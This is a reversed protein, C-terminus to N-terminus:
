DNAVKEALPAKGFELAIVKGTLQERTWTKGDVDAAEFAPAARHIVESGPFQRSLEVLDASPAKNVFSIMRDIRGRDFKWVTRSAELFQLVAERDGADLIDQALTMNPEFVANKITAPITISAILRTKAESLDGKAAGVRGLVTQALNYPYATKPGLSLV